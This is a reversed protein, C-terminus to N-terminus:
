PWFGDSSFFAALRGEVNELKEEIGVSELTKLRDGSLIM